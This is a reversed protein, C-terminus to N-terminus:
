TPRLDYARDRRDDRGLGQAGTGVPQAHLAGPLAAIFLGAVGQRDRDAPGSACGLHGAARREPRPPAPQPSVPGSPRTRAPVSATGLIEREGTATVGTAIIVAKLGGQRNRAGSTPRTASCVRSRPTIWLGNASASLHENGHGNSRGLEGRRWAITSADAPTVYPNFLVRDTFSNPDRQARPPTGPIMPSVRHDAEPPAGIHYDAGLPGAVDEAFFRTLTKGSVRHIVEGLLPGM